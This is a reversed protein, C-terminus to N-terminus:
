AGPRKVSDTAPRGSLSNPSDLHAGDYVAVGLRGVLEGGLWGGVLALGAGAFSLALPVVGPAQGDGPRLFWSVAFLGMVAVNTLGHALGIRKARTGKPIAFWDIWGFPAAVLGGIVGSAVMWYAVLPPTTGGVILTIVDFIVATSLLGLPFVILLQHASHGLIKARSEM